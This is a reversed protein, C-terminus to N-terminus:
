RFALAVVVILGFMIFALAMWAVPIRRLEALLVDARGRLEALVVDLRAVLPAHQVGALPAARALAVGATSSPPSPPMAAAPAPGPSAAVPDPRMVLSRRDFFQPADDAASEQEDAVGRVGSRALPDVPRELAAPRESTVTDLALDVDIALIDDSPMDNSVITHSPPASSESSRAYPSRQAPDAWTDSMDHADQPGHGSMRSLAEILGRTLELCSPIRRELDHEIAQHVVQALPGPVWPAVRALPDPPHSVLRIIFAEYTPLEPYAPRGALMEYLVLGLAWVDTRVDVTYGQAQEPSMYQPTGVVTGARTLKLRSDARSADIVKSIGFDLIKVLPEDDDRDVLFINAPKLDRHVVGAEHARALGRAVQVGIRAAEAPDIRSTRELRAALDEGTLYEMVLYLGLKDDTGVDFV